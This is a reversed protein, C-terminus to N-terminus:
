GDGKEQEDPNDKLAAELEDMEEATAPIASDEDLGLKGSEWNETTNELTTDNDPELLKRGLKVLERHCAARWPAHNPSLLWLEYDRAYERVLDVAKQDNDHEM